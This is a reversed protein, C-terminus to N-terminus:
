KGGGGGGGGGERGREIDKLVGLVGHGRSGEELVEGGVPAAGDAAGSLGREPRPGPLDGAEGLVLAITQAGVAHRPPLLGPQDVPRQRREERQEDRTVKHVLTSLSLIHSLSILSLFLSLSISSFSLSLSLLLSLRSLARCSLSLFFLLCFLNEHTRNKGKQGRGGWVCM